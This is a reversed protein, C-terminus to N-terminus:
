PCHSLRYGHILAFFLLSSMRRTCLNWTFPSIREIGSRPTYSFTFQSPSIIKDTAAIPAGRNPYFGHFPKVVYFFRRGCEFIPTADQCDNTEYNSTRKYNNGNLQKDNAQLNLVLWMKIPMAGVRVAARKPPPKRKLGRKTM